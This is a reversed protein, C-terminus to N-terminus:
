VKRMVPCTSPNDTIPQHLKHSGRYGYSWTDHKLLLVTHVNCKGVNGAMRVTVNSYLLLGLSQRGGETLQM